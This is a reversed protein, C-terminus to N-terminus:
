YVYRSNAKVYLDTGQRGRWYYLDNSRDVILSNSGVRMKTTLMRPTFVSRVNTSTSTENEVRIDKCFMVSDGISLEKRYFMFGSVESSLFTFDDGISVTRAEIRGNSSAMWFTARKGIRCKGANIRLSTRAPEVIQEFAPPDIRKGIVSMSDDIFVHDTTKKNGILVHLVAQALMLDNGVVMRDSMNDVKYDLHYGHELGLWSAYMKLGNGIRARYGSGHNAEISSAIVCCNDGICLEGNGYDADVRLETNIVMGNSGIRITATDDGGTTGGIKTYLLTTGKGVYLSCGAPVTCGIVVSSKDELYLDGYIICDKAVGEGHISGAVLSYNLVSGTAGEVVRAMLARCSDAYRDFARRWRVVSYNYRM